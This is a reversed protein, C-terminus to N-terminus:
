RARFADAWEVTRGLHAKPDQAALVMQVRSPFVAREARYLVGHPVGDAQVAALAAGRDSPDHDVDRLHQKFWDYTNWTNYTVCPSQVNVLALGPHLFADKLIRTLDAQRASFGQAVYTAGATIALELPDLPDALPGSPSAKTRKDAQTTPSTQGKTLGYVQNDMVIYTLDVNRRAAHMFHGLGIGFGDGDGGAVFVLKDPLACKIGTAVPLARGHLGHFGYTTVYSTFTGSCGIGTVCVADEAAIGLEALATQVARLVGFDGCGPCWIPDKGMFDKWQLEGADDREGSGDMKRSAGSM